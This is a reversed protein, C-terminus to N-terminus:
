KSTEENELAEIRNNERDFFFYVGELRLAEKACYEPWHCDPHYSTGRDDLKLRRSIDYVPPRAERPMTVLRAYIEEALTM